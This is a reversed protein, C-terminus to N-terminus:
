ESSFPSCSSVSTDNPSLADREGDSLQDEAGHHDIRADLAHGGSVQHRFDGPVDRLDLVLLNRVNRPKQLAEVVVAIDLVAHGDSAPGAV